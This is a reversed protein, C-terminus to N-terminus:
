SAGRWRAGRKTAGGTGFGGGAPVDTAIYADLQARHLGALLSSDGGFFRVQNGTPIPANLSTSCM